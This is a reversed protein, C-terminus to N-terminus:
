TLGQEELEIRESGGGGGGGSDEQQVRLPGRAEKFLRGMDELAVGATEPLACYVYVGSLACAASFLFFTSGGWGQVLLPTVKGIVANSAWNVLAGAAVGQARLQLDFVESSVVWAVPGWTASFAFTFLMMCTVASYTLASSQPSGTPTAEIATVLVAIACHCAAMLAAGGLLLLRRGIGARDVAWMGPLTGLVLLSSNAVVLVTAAVDASVGARLFLESAFYLIANIGTWQQFFQVACAAATRKANGPSLLAQFRTAWALLSTSSQKSGSSSSGAGEGADGLEELIGEVENAVCPDEVACERLLAVVEHAEELRGVLVLWRPSPPIAFAALLLALGPIAQIALAARWQANGLGKGFSYLLSNSCSALFIGVTILLQQMSILAGRRDRTSAESIFLPAIMSLIGIGLGAVLRGLCLTALSPALAQLTGGLTFLLAGLILCAKRGWADAGYSSLLSGLCCGCLFLAVITGNTSAADGTPLIDGGGDLALPQTATGFFLRFTNMSLIADIIGIEFGFCLGSIAATLTVCTTPRLFCCRSRGGGGFKRM